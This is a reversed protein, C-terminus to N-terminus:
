PRLQSLVQRVGGALFLTDVGAVILTYGRDIYPQVAEASVGFIGLRVGASLCAATVREIAAVVEPHDVQGIRGMSASLDYPGVLVADVGAVQVIAEIQNVADIHEAQVVVATRENAHAIYDQLQLGYGHARGIGVGRTGQPAYKSWCVVQAAQEASNVQPAIIGAAGIDLAKKIPEEATSALRVLSPVAGAAQLAAQLEATAFVSHEADIFLWDVGSLALIEAVAPATLTLMTGLLQDGRRLRERLDHM